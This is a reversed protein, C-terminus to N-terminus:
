GNARQFRWKQLTSWMDNKKKCSLLIIEGNKLLIKRNERSIEDRMLRDVWDLNVLYSRHCSYFGYKGMENALRMIKEGSFYNGKTTHIILNRRHTEMYIIDKCPLELIKGHLLNLRIRNHGSLRMMAHEMAEAIDEELKGKDLYRFANIKYGESCFKQTSSVIIMLSDPYHMKYKRAVVLGNSEKLEAEMFVISYEQLNELFNEAGDYVDIQGDTEPFFKEIETRIGEVWTKMDEVIAIRIM